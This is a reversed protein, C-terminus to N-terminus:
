NEAKDADTGLILFFDPQEEPDTPYTKVWDPTNTGQKAGTINKLASLSNQKQGDTLDYVITQTYDRQAANGIQPVVFKYGVLVASIRNALGTIFTGNAIIVSARDKITEIKEIKEEAPLGLTFINQALNRIAAFNGTRPTLIFAGDEGTGNVLLGDPADSLVKNIIQDRNIDKTLSWLRITEWVNFNTSVNQNFESILKEIMIPNLLTQESLLQTKIAELLLQQRRARAFDSGEVGLAHRSRAYKLALEGDMKQLGKEIHLHEFRAYYDPNEEQGGIPYSYDDLTNEVNVEVGGLEDIVKVFGNFDVRIYYPIPIQLLEGIAQATVEGGSGPNEQEAYANISNIKQWNSVPTVLDRPFSIMSVQKTSPKISLLLITDALYAGDHGAGGMGLLLINVRDNEEGQLQRDGGPVLHKITNFFSGNPLWSMANPSSIIIKGAFIIGVVIAVIIFATVRKRKKNAALSEIEEWAGQEQRDAEEMKQKFDIM